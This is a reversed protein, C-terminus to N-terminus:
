NQYVLLRLSDFPFKRSLNYVGFQIDSDRVTTHLLDKCYHLRKNYTM